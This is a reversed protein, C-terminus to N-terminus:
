HSDDGRGARFDAVHFAEMEIMVRHRIARLLRPQEKLFLAEFPGAM